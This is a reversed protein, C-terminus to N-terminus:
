FKSNPTLVTNSSKISYCDLKNNINELYYTNDNSCINYLTIDTTKFSLCTNENDETAIIEKILNRKNTYKDLSVLNYTKDQYTINFYYTELDKNYKEIIKFDDITYELEYSTKRLYFYMFLTFLLIIVIVLIIHKYRKVQKM